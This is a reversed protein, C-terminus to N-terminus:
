SLQLAHRGPTYGFRRRFARIFNQSRYGLMAAVQKVPYQKDHVLRLALRMKEEQRHQVVSHGYLQRFGKNLKYASIGFRRVLERLEWEKGTQQLLDAVQYLVGIEQWNLRVAAHVPKEQLTQLGARVLQQASGPQGERLADLWRLLTIDAMGNYLGLRAPLGREVRQLFSTLLPSGAAFRQLYAPPLMIDAFAYLEQQGIQLEASFYPIHLLNFSREHFLLRGAQSLYLQHSRALAFRFIIGPEDLWLFTEQERSYFHGFRVRIDGEVLEQFLFFCHSGATAVVQHLAGPFLLSDLLPPIHASCPLPGWKNSYLRHTM